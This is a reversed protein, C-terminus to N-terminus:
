TASNCSVALANLFISRAQVKSRQGSCEYRQFLCTSCPSAKTCGGPREMGRRKRMALGLNFACGHILLRKIINDHHRLHTRRMAGTEYMHAFSREVREGRQRLLRLGRNGRIRRRNAYVAAKEEAKGKWNRRGRKPESCYTRVGSQKISVMADNSHYGKDLVLDAPGEPNVREGVMENNTGGQLKM